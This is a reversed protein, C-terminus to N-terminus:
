RYWEETEIIRRVPEPVLYRISLGRAVRERIGTSSLDMRTVPISRVSPPEAGTLEPEVRSAEEGERSMVVIRALRAVEMPEKWSGFSAWQDVGMILHLQAGAEREALRALTDATYSPGDRLVELDDAQFRPDSEVARSVMRFRVRAPAYVGDKKHPPTGAPIFLVRELELAELVDQAAVLHGIHFPDFTGGFVGIRTEGEM